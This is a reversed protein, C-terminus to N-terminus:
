RRAGRGRAAPARRASAGSALARPRVVHLAVVAADVLDLPKARSLKAASCLAESGVTTARQESRRDRAGPRRLAGVRRRAQRAGASPV